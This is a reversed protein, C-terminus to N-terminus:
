VSAIVQLDGKSTDINVSEIQIGPIVSITQYIYGQDQKVADEQFGEGLWLDVTYHMEAVVRFEDNQFIAYSVFSERDYAGSTELLEILAKEVLPVLTQRIVTVKQSYQQASQTFLDWNGKEFTVEYNDKDQDVEGVQDESDVAIHTQTGDNLTLNKPASFGHAVKDSLKSVEKDPDPTENNSGDTGDSGDTLDLDGGLDDGSDDTTGTDDDDSEDDVTEDGERLRSLVMEELDKRSEDLISEVLEKIQKETINM